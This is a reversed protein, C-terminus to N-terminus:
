TQQTNSATLARTLGGKREMVLARSRAMSAVSTKTECLRDSLKRRGQTVQFGPCLIDEDNAKRQVDIEADSSGRMIKVRILHQENM